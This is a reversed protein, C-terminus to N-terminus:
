ASQELKTLYVNTPNLKRLEDVLQHSLVRVYPDEKIRFFGPASHLKKPDLVIKEVEVIEGEDYIIESKELDLCDFTGLPNIIFYDTSAVRKKHDYLTFPLCEMPVGTREFVEKMGREVVLLNTVTALLSALKIGPSEKRMYWKADQPYKDGMAIGQSMRYKLMNTGEPEGYLVCYGPDVAPSMNISFYDM